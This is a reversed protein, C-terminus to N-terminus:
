SAIGRVAREAAITLGSAVGAGVGLLDERSDITEEFSLYDNYGESTILKELLERNVFRSMTGTASVEVPEFGRDRVVAILERATFAHWSPMLTSRIKLLDDNVDLNGHRQVELVTKLKEFHILDFEVGLPLMIGTKNFVSMILRDGCVRALEDIATAYETHCFSVPADLPLVLDFAGDKWRSLDTITGQFFAIEVNSRAAEAAAIKLMESSIDLHTVRHGLSALAISFRGTGGGADLISCRPDPVHRKILRLLLDTHIRKNPDQERAAERPAKGDWYKRLLDIRDPQVALTRV